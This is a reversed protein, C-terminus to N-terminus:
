GACAFAAAASGASATVREGLPCALRTRTTTGLRAPIGTESLRSGEPGGDNRRAYAQAQAIIEPHRETWAVLSETLSLFDLVEPTLSYVVAAPFNETRRERTLLGGETMKTLTRELVSDQLKNNKVSWDEGIAYSRITSLIEKRRMPGDSLVVLIAPIWKDGFLYKLDYLGRLLREDVAPM